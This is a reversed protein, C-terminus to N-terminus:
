ESLKVIIGKKRAQHFAFRMASLGAMLYLFVLTYGKLLLYKHESYFGFSQRFYELFYTLPIWKSLNYFFPPLTDVPYYIGSLLMFVYAFM